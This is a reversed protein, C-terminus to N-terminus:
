SAMCPSHISSSISIVLTERANLKAKIVSFLKGTFLVRSGNGFIGYHTEKIACYYVGSYEQSQGIVTLDCSKTIENNKFIKDSLDVDLM